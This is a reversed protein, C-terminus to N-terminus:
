TSPICIKLGCNTKIVAIKETMATHVVKNCIQTGYFDQFLERLATVSNNFFFFEGTFFIEM